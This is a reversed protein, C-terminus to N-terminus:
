QPPYAWFFMEATLPDRADNEFAVQFGRFARANRTMDQITEGDQAENVRSTRPLSPCKEAWDEVYESQLWGFEPKWEGRDWGYFSINGTNADGVIPFGFEVSLDPQGGKQRVDWHFIGGLGFTSTHIHRDLVYERHTGTDYGLCFHTRGDPAYYRVNWMNRNRHGQFVHYRGVLAQNLQSTTMNSLPTLQNRRGELRWNITRMDTRDEFNAGGMRARVSEAGAAYRDHAATMGSPRNGDWPFNQAYTSFGAVSLAIVLSLTKLHRKM